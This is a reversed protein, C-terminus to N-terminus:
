LVETAEQASHRNHPALDYLMQQLAKRGRHLRSRVTGIPCDLIEAIEQYSLEEMFYLTCVLRFEEPLRAFAATIQEQTLRAMLETAPEMSQDRLTTDQVADCLYAEQAAEWGVLEPRRRNQRCQNLFGNTLIKLFWAKFNTGPQFTDFAAFARLATTQVLDEADERNRTLYYATGYAPKLVPTLYSEFLRQQTSTAM